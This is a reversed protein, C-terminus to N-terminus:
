EVRMAVLRRVPDFSGTPQDVGFEVVFTKLRTGESVRGVLAGRDWLRCVTGLAECRMEIDREHDRFVVATTSADVPNAFPPRCALDPRLLLMETFVIRRPEASPQAPEVLVWDGRFDRICARPRSQVGQTPVGGYGWQLRELLMHDETPVTSSTGSSPPTIRRIQLLMGSLSADLRLVGVREALRPPANATGRQWLPVGGSVRFLDADLCARYQTTLTVDTGGCQGAYRMPGAAYLMVPRGDAEYTMVTLVAIDGQTEFYVGRGRDGDANAVGPGTSVPFVEGYWGNEPVWRIPTTASALLPTGLVVLAVARRICRFVLCSAM